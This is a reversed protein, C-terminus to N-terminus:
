GNMRKQTQAYIGDLGCPKPHPPPHPGTPDSCASPAGGAGPARLPRPLPPGPAPPRRERGEREGRPWPELWVSWGWGPARKGRLRGPAGPPPLPRAAASGSSQAGPVRRGSTPTGATPGAAGFGVDGPRGGPQQPVEPTSFLHGPLPQHDPSGESGGRVKCPSEHYKGLPARPPPPRAPFATAM